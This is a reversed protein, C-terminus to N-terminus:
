KFLYNICDIILRIWGAIIFYINIGLFVIGLEYLIYYNMDTIIYFRYSMIIHIIEIFCALSILILKFCNSKHPKVIYILCPVSLIAFYLGILIEYFITKLVTYSVVRIYYFSFIFKFFMLIGMFLSTMVQYDFKYNCVEENHDNKWDKLCIYCFQGNCKGCTMHKCGDFRYIIFDCFICPKCNMFIILDTLLNFIKEKFNFFLNTIKDMRTILRIDSDFWLENCVHCQFEKKCKINDTYGLYACDNKPCKKIDECIVSYKKFFVENIVTVHSQKLNSYIWKLNIPKKCKHNPCYIEIDKYLVTYNLEIIWNYLCHRCLDCYCELIFDPDIERECVLCNREQFDFPLKDIQTEM